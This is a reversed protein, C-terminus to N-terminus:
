LVRLQTYTDRRGGGSPPDPANKEAKSIAPVTNKEVPSCRKPFRVAALQLARVFICLNIPVVKHTEAQTPGIFPHIICVVRRFM